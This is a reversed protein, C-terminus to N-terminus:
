CCFFSLVSAAKRTKMTTQIISATLIKPRADLEPELSAVILAFSGDDLWFSSAAVFGFVDLESLLLGAADTGSVGALVSVAGTCVGLLELLLM